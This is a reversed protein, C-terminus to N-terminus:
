CREKREIEFKYDQNRHRVISYLRGEVEYRRQAVHISFM